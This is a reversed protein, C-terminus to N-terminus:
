LPSWREAHTLIEIGDETVVVDDEIRVGGYGPIYVGPEVTFVMGKELKFDFRPSLGYPDHTALGLGHGLSHNFMGKFKSNDIIKRATADVDKSIRGPRMYRLAADQARAVTRYMERFRRSAKGIPITRTIDSRYKEYTAGFDLLLIGGEKLKADGSTYHPEASNPGFGCITTFAPSTAGYKGLLYNLEASVEYEKMGPRIRPLLDNYARSAIDCARRITKLERESKVARAYQIAKSIDILQTNRDIVKKIFLYNAHTLEPANIGVRRCNKLLRKLLSKMEEPKRSILLNGKLRRASQEELPSTIVTIEGSRDIVCISGEFAGGKLLETVYFFTNDSLRDPGNMVCVADINLRFRKACEFIRKSGWTGAM